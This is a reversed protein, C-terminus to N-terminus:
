IKDLKLKYCKGGLRNLEQSNNNESVKYGKLSLGTTEAVVPMCIMKHGNNNNHRKDCAMKEQYKEQVVNIGGV